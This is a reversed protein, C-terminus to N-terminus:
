PEPAESIEGCNYRLTDIWFDSNLFNEISNQLFLDKGSLRIYPSEGIWYKAYLVGDKFYFVMDSYNNKLASVGNKIITERRYKRFINIYPWECFVIISCRNLRYIYSPNAKFTSKLDSISAGIPIDFYCTRRFFEPSWFSRTSIIFYLSCLIILFVLIAYQIIKKVM